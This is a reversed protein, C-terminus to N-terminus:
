DFVEALADVVGRGFYGVADGVKDPQLHTLYWCVQVVFVAGYGIIRFGAVLLRGLLKFPDLLLGTM